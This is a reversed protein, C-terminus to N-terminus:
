EWGWHQTWSPQTWHIFCLGIHLFPIEVTLITSLPSRNKEENSMSFQELGAMQRKKGPLSHTRPLLHAENYGLKNTRPALEQGQVQCPHIGTRRDEEWDKAGLELCDWCTSQGWSMLRGEQETLVATGTRRGGWNGIKDYYLYDPTQSLARVQDRSGWGM